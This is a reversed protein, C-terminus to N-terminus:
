GISILNILFLGNQGIVFTVILTRRTKSWDSYNVPQM